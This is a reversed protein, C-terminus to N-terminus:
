ITKNMRAAVREALYPASELLVSELFKAQGVPHFAEMNEHVYIAYPASPGGFALRVAIDGQAIIPGEVYGSARLHGFRVPTRRKAETMEIEAEARLANGLERPLGNGLEALKALVGNLGGIELTLDDAM